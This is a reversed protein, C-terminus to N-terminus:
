HMFAWLIHAHQIPHLPVGPGGPVDLVEQLRVDSVMVQCPGGLADMGAGVSACALHPPPKKQKKHASRHPAM